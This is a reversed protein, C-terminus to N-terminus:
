AVLHSFVEEGTGINQQIRRVKRRAIASRQAKPDQGIMETDPGIVIRISEGRDCGRQQIHEASNPRVLDRADRGTQDCMWLGIIRNQRDKGLMAAFRRDGSEASLAHQALRTEKMKGFAAAGGAGGRDGPAAIQRRRDRDNQKASGLRVHEDCEDQIRAKVEVARRCGPENRAGAVVTRQRPRQERTARKGAIQRWQEQKCVCLLAARHKDLRPTAIEADNRFKTRDQRLIDDRPDMRGGGPAFDIRQDNNECQPEPNGARRHRAENLVFPALGKRQRAIDGSDRGILREFKKAPHVSAAPIIGPERRQHPKHDIKRRLRRPANQSRDDAPHGARRRAVTRRTNFADSVAM